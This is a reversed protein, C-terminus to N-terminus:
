NPFYNMTVLTIGMGDQYVYMNHIYYIHFMNIYTIYIYCISFTIYMYINVFRWVTSLGILVPSPPRPPPKLTGCPYIKTSFEQVAFSKLNFNQIKLIKKHHIVLKFIKKFFNALQGYHCDQWSGRVVNKGIGKAYYIKNPIIHFNREVYTKFKIKLSCVVKSFLKM